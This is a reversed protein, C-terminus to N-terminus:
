AAQTLMKKVSAKAADSDGSFYDGVVKFAPAEEGVFTNKLVTWTSLGAPNMMGHELQYSRKSLVKYQEDFYHSLIRLVELYVNDQGTRYTLLMNLQLSVPPTQSDSVFHMEDIEGERIELDNLKGLADRVTSTRTKTEKKGDRIKVGYFTAVPASAIHQEIISKYKAEESPNSQNLKKSKQASVIHSFLDSVLASIGTVNEVVPAGKADKLPKGDLGLKVQQSKNKSDNFENMVLVERAHAKQEKFEAVGQAPDIVAPTGHRLEEYLKSSGEELIDKMHTSFNVRSSEGFSDPIFLKPAPINATGLAKRIKLSRASAAAAYGETHSCKRYDALSAAQASSTFLILALATVKQGANPLKRRM